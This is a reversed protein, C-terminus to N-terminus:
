DEDIKNLLNQRRKTEESTIPIGHPFPDWEGDLKVCKERKLRQLIGDRECSPTFLVSVEPKGDKVKVRPQFKGLGEIKVSYNQAIFETMFFVVQSIVYRIHPEDLKMTSHLSMHRCFAAYGVEHDLEVRTQKHGNKLRNTVYKIAM